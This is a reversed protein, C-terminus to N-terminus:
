ENVERGSFDAYRASCSDKRRRFQRIKKDESCFLQRGEELSIEPQM